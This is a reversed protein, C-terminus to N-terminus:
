RHRVSRIKDYERRQDVDKKLTDRLADISDFKTIERHFCLFEITIEEDYLDGSFDLLHTELNALYDSFTPHAGVNTVSAYHKDRYRVTTFYVGCKLPVDDLDCNATPFGIMGGDMRGRKVKRVLSFPRGLLSETKSIDGSTLASKVSETSIKEGCSSVLDLIVGDCALYKALDTANGVGKAGFTFDSGCVFGAITLKSRIYSVFDIPSFSLFTADAEVFYLADIGLAEIFAIREKFSFVPKKEIGLLPFINNKFLFVTACTEKERALSIAEKIVKQHGLHISDFFGFAMVGADGHDCLSLDLVKM